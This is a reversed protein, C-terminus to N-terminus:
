EKTGRLFVAQWPRYNSVYTDDILIKNNKTVQRTFVVRAGPAAFDTQRVEGKPLSTEDQYVPAPAPTQNTIIPKSMTVLRADKTGYLLFTLQLNITDLQTQILISHGTDNTFKLDVSPVFVTADLGPPSDQEYYGVRYDHAHRETIPVGANLLARFFTTSVQCIGGGDGLVTHGNQIVYAQKYGTYVSVDGLTKSFSFTENPAVIVGNFKETAITINHIRNPISHQFISTGSGILEQIGLTNAQDTTVKPKLIKVPLSFVYSEPKGVQIVLPIRSTLMNVFADRDIEAGNSSQRFTTVRGNNFTFLAEVPQIYAKKVIPEISQQLADIDFRYSPSLDIGNMYAQLTLSINSLMDKSRGISFAQEALLNENYGIHLNEASTTAVPASEYLVTITTDKVRNNLKKFFLAVENQTKGGISIHQITIGPFVRNGYYKQFLIFAFSIFFFLGLLVGTFFWFISKTVVIIKGKKSHHTKKM